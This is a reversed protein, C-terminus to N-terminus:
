FIQVTMDCLSCVTVRTLLEKWFLHIEVIKISMFLTRLRMRCFVASFLRKYCTVSLLM